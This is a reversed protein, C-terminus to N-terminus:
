FDNAFSLIKFQGRYEVVAGFLRADHIAGSDDVRHAICRPWARLLGYTTPEGDCSTAGSGSSGGSRRTSSARLDADPERKAPADLRRRPAPQLSPRRAPPPPLRDVRVRGQHRRAARARRSRQELRRRCFPRRALRAVSRRGRLQDVQPVGVRFRRLAEAPSCRRTWSTAPRPACSRTRPPLDGRFRRRASRRLRRAGPAGFRHSSRSSPPTPTLRRARARRLRHGARCSRGHRRALSPLSVIRM